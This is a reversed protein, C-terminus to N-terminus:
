LMKFRLQRVGTIEVTGLFMDLPRVFVVGTPYKEELDRVKYLPKYLIMKEGTESHHAYGVVEYERGKYHRFKEGILPESM